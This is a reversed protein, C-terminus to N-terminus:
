GSPTQDPSLVLDLRAGRGMRKFGRVKIEVYRDAEERM